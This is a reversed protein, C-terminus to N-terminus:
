SSHSGPIHKESFVKLLVVVTSPQPDSKHTCLVQKQLLYAYFALRTKELSKPQKPVTPSDSYNTFWNSHHLKCGWLGSSFLWINKGRVLEEESVELKWCRFLVQTSLKAALSLNPMSFPAQLFITTTPHGLLWPQALWDRPWLPAGGYFFSGPPACHRTILKQTPPTSRQCNPLFSDSPRLGM